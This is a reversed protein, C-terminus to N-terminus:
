LLKGDHVFLPMTSFCAKEDFNIKYVRSNQVPILTVNRVRPILKQKFLPKLVQFKNAM